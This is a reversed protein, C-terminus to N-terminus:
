KCRQRLENAEVTGRTTHANDARMGRNWNVGGEETTWMGDEPRTSQLSLQYCPHVWMRQLCEFAHGSHRIGNIGHKLAAM